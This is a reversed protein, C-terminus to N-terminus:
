VVKHTALVSLGPQSQKLFQDTLSRPALIVRGTVGTIEVATEMRKMKRKREILKNM